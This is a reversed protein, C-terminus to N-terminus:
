GDLAARVAMALKSKVLPKLLYERIGMEKAIEESIQESFGTCLIVPIDPRIGMLERALKEGTLNPMTMDTIVLDFNESQVKFLELAEISSTRGTVRYGLRKLMNDALDVLAQEDDVFLIREDGGPLEAVTAVSSKETNQVIPLYVEFTTGQGPESNVTIAGGHSKIIGHVVALGMGTGKDRGKTTYFPEFIRKKVEAPMGHGSDSIKLCLFDGPIVELKRAELESGIRVDRLSVELVGGTAQMAHDANTCLNMLVQHIQTPDALTAAHSSIDQRIEITSPISARLLKLAEKVILEVQVPKLEQEAQRSFTLIQKVLDKARDGATLVERLSGQVLSNGESDELAIETFGLVATLINNFDHAIGGALTGIAEMKHAQQLRSELNEKEKEAQKRESIDRSAGLIGVLEGAPNRLFNATVEVWVTSGDKRYQELELTRAQYPKTSDRGQRALEKSIIKSGLTYSDPTFVDKLDLELLEPPTFGQLREVSPSAYTFKSSAPDITWIVDSINDALLRYQQESERIQKFSRANIISNATQSAVGMLLSIESQALRNSSRTNEVALVGLSEKEYFIPVCVFSQVDMQRIFERSRPSLDNEIEAVDKVLFPTQEKFSRVFHGRSKDNVLDFEANLLIKEQERTYGFGAIFQLRSRNRNALMILGREFYLHKQMVGVVTAAIRGVDLIKSVAQGIEQILLANSHRINMEDLLDKAANGQIEITRILNKKGLRESYLTLILNFCACALAPAVWLHGPLAFYSVLSILLGAFLAINSIRKWILFPVKEWSVIYRCCDDGKHYCATHEIEAFKNTFAKAVAELSGIRNECQYPKERTGAKPRSVIEVKNAGLKRSKMDAGRSLTRVLKGIMLYVTAPNMLGIIYQKATGLNEGSVTFRGAERAIHPNGTRAAVTEYFRDTQQQTFWHGPDEVEHRTTGAYALIPDIEIDPYYTKLYEVYTNMVRSSYLLADAKEGPPNAQEGPLAVNETVSRSM